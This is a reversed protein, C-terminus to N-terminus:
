SRMRRGRAWWVPDEKPDEEDDGTAKYGVQLWDVNWKDVDNILEVVLVRLAAAFEVLARGEEIVVIAACPKDCETNNV